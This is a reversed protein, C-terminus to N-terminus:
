ELTGIPGWPSMKRAKGTLTTGKGGPKSRQRGKKEDERSTDCGKDHCIRTVLLYVDRMLNM